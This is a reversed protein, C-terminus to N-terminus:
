PVLLLRQPLYLCHGVRRAVGSCAPHQHVAMWKGGRWAGWALRGAPARGLSITQGPDGALELARAWARM